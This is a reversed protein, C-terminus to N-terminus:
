KCEFMEKAYMLIDISEEFRNLKCLCDAKILLAFINEGVINIGKDLVLLSNDFDKLNLLSFALNIYVDGEFHINKNNKLADEFNKKAMQFKQKNNFIIGM